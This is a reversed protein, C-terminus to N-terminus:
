DAFRVEFERVASSVHVLTRGRLEVAVEVAQSYELFFKDFRFQKYPTRGGASKGDITRIQQM